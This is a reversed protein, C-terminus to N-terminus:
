KDLLASTLEDITLIGEPIDVGAKRLEYAVETVQPVDLRYEKIEDVRTFIERPTGEMVIKGQNMVIVKDAFIVEDMHHTILLVTV